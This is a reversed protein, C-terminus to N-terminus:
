NRQEKFTDIRYQLERGRQLLKQKLYDIKSERM